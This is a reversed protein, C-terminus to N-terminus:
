RYLRRYQGPTIGVRKKFATTFHSQSNFGADNAIESLTAQTEALLFEARRLRSDLIFLHPSRGTASQFTRAFHFRSQAAIAAIDAVQIASSIEREIHDIVAGITSSSLTSRVKRIRSRAQPMRFNVMMALVFRAHPACYLGNAILSGHIPNHLSTERALRKALPGFGAQPDYIGVLDSLATKGPTLAAMVDTVFREELKIELVRCPATWTMKQEPGESGILVTTGVEINIEITSCASTFNLRGQESLFILITVRGAGASYHGAAACDLVRANVLVMPHPILQRSTLRMHRHPM